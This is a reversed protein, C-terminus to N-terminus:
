EEVGLLSGLQEERIQLYSPANEKTVLTIGTNIRPLGLVSGVSLDIGAVLIVFLQGIALVALVSTQVVVNSINAGTLFVPSLLTMALVLLLLIIVPGLRIFSLSLRISRETAGGVQGGTIREIFASM